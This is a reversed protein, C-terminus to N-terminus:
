ILSVATSHGKILVYNDYINIKFLTFYACVIMYLVISYIM